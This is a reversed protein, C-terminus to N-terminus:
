APKEEPPQHPKPRPMEEALQRRLAERVVASPTRGQAAALTKLAHADHDPLRFSYARM